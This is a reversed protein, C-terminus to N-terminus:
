TKTCWAVMNETLLRSSNKAEIQRVLRIMARVSKWLALNFKGDLTDPIPATEKFQINTFGNMQLIQRLSDEAFITLHTLDGYIVQGPFLGQGNPTQLIFLSDQRLSKHILPFLAFLEEKSFHEIFDIAVIAAYTNRKRALFKHADQVSANLKQSTAIRIQETSIDIGEADTFGKARLFELFYGPGCGLELIPDRSSCSALLPYFRHQYIRFFETVHQENRHLQDRKLTSVYRKYLTKRFDKM